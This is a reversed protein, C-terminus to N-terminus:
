STPTRKRRSPLPVVAKSTTCLSLEALTILLLTIPTSAMVLRAPGFPGWGLCADPDQIERMCTMSVLNICDWLVVGQGEYVVALFDMSTSSYASRPKRGQMTEPLEPEWTLPGDSIFCNSEIDWELLENEATVVSLITGDGSFGLAKCGSTIEFHSLETGEVSFWVCISQMSVSALYRGSEAFALRWVLEGHRLSHLGHFITNDYILVQGEVTVVEQTPGAIQLGMDM